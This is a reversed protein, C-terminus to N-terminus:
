SLLVMRISVQFGSVIISFITFRDYTSLMFAHVMNNNATRRVSVAPIPSQFVKRTQGPSTITQVSPTFTWGRALM